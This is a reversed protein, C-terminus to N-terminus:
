KPQLALKLEQIELAQTDMIKQMDKVAEILLGVMNGYSVSKMGGEDTYVVEPVHKEIEQAIVGMYTKETDRTSLKYTVGRLNKVTDLAGTITAVDTKYKADSYTIVNYAFIDNTVHLMYQPNTTGIGVSGNAYYINSSAPVGNWFSSVGSLQSGDGIFQTAKVTGAVDLRTSPTTSGIGVNGNNPNM